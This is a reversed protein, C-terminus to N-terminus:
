MSPSNESQNVTEETTANNEKEMVLSDDQNETTEPFRHKNEEFWIKFPVKKKRNCRLKPPEVEIETLTSYTEMEVIPQNSEMRRQIRLYIM